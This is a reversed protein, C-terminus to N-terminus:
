RCKRRNSITDSTKINSEIYRSRKWFQDRIPIFDWAKMRLHSDIEFIVSVSLRVIGRSKLLFVISVTKETDIVFDQIRESFSLDPKERM